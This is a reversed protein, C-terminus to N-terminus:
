APGLTPLAGTTLVQVTVYDGATGYITVHRSAVNVVRVKGAPVRVTGTGTPTVGGPGASSVTVTNSGSQNDVVVCGAAVQYERDIYGAAPFTLTFVELVHNTVLAGLREAWETTTAAIRRLEALMEGALIQEAKSM